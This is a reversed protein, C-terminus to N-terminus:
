SDNGSVPIRKTKIFGNREAERASAVLKLQAGGVERDGPKVDLFDRVQGLTQPKCNKLFKKQIDENLRAISIAIMRPPAKVLVEALEEDKMELIDKFTMLYSLAKETYDYDEKKGVEIMRERREKPTTELLEVLKRFGDPDRKYRSYVSM